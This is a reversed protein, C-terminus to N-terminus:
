GSTALLSVTVGPGDVPNTIEEGAESGMPEDVWCSNWENTMALELIGARM